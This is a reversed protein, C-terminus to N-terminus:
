QKHVLKELELLRERTEKLEKRTQKLAEVLVPTIKNFDITLYDFVDKKDAEPSAGAKNVRVADPLVAQVDQAILSLSEDNEKVAGSTMKEGVDSWKFRYATMGNLIEDYDDVRVFDKKLRRDSWNTTINGPVYFNRSADCHFSWGTGNMHVGCGKDGGTTGMMLSLEQNTFRIGNWGNIANGSDIKWNGYHADNRYFINTYTENYLGATGYNSWWDSTYRRGTAYDNGSIHVNYGPTRIGNIGISKGRGYICLTGGGTGVVNHPNAQASDTWDIILRDGNGGTGSSDGGWNNQNIVFKRYSGVNSPDATNFTLTSGHNGNTQSSSVIMDSYASNLVLQARGSASSDAELGTFRNQGGGSLGTGWIYSRGAVELKYSPGATGIGVNGSSYISSGSISSASLTNSGAITGYYTGILNTATVTSAAITNSGAVAGYHTGILNTSTVTSAAITNSGALVGYMAVTSIINGSLVNGAVQLNSTPNTTGIGVFAGLGTGTQYLAM